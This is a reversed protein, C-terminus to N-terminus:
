ARGANAIHPPLTLLHEEELVVRLLVQSVEPRIDACDVEIFLAAPPKSVALLGLREDRTHQPKQTILPVKDEIRKCARPGRTRDGLLQATRPHHDLTPLM